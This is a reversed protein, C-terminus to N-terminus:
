RDKEKWGNEYNKSREPVIRSCEGSFSKKVNENEHLEMAKGQFAIRGSESVYGRDAYELVMRANQEVLLITTGDEDAENIKEFVIEM